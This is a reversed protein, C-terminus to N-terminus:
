LHPIYDAWPINKYSGIPLSRISLFIEVTIYARAVAYGFIILVHTLQSANWMLNYLLLTWYHRWLSGEKKLLTIARFPFAIVDYAMMFSTSCCIFMRIIFFFLSVPISILIATMRMINSLLDWIHGHPGTPFLSRPGLKYIESIESDSLSFADHYDEHRRVFAMQVVATYGLLPLTIIICGAVRWLLCEIDSPFHSNWATLHVAGYIVNLALLAKGIPTDFVKWLMYAKQLSVQPGQIMNGVQDRALTPERRDGGRWRWLDGGVAMAAEALSVVDAPLKDSAQPDQLALRARHQTFALHFNHAIMAERPRLAMRAKHQAGRFAAPDMGPEDRPVLQDHWARCHDCSELSDSCFCFRTDKKLDHRRVRCDLTLLMFLVGDATVTHQTRVDQPKRLWLAYMALACAVHVITHLELLTVPLGCARRALAQVVLWLAQVCVLGKTLADAKSRDQVSQVDLLDMPGAQVLCVAGFSTLTTFCDGPLVARVFWWKVERGSNDFRKRYGGGDKPGEVVYGGMVIFFAQEMGPPFLYRMLQRHAQSIRERLNKQMTDAVGETTPGSTENGSSSAVSSATRTSSAGSEVDQHGHAAEVTPGVAAQFAKHDKLQKCIWRAEMYQDFAICFVVEPAFVGIVAWLIKKLVPRTKSGKPAVNLHVATWLCLFLTLVCSLLLDMTSRRPSSPEWVPEGAKRAPFDLLGTM